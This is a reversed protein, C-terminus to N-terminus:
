LYPIQPGHSHIGTVETHTQPVGRSKHVKRIKGITELFGSYKKLALSSQLALSKLFQLKRICATTNLLQKLERCYRKSRERGFLINIFFLMGVLM